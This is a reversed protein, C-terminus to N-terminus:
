EAPAPDPSETVYGTQAPGSPIESSTFFDTALLAASYVDHFVGNKLVEHRRIGESRFGLKDMVKRSAENSTMCRCAVRNIRFSTFVYSLLAKAAEVAYGNGWHARGLAYGLEMSHPARSVWFCGITGLIMSDPAERLVIGYPDPNRNRYSPLAFETIFKLSDALSSHADWLTFRAVDRDHAYNFVGQLDAKTLPRLILRETTLVPPLYAATNLLNQQCMVELGPALMQTVFGSEALFRVAHPTSPRECVMRLCGSRHALGALEKLLERGLGQGRHQQPVAIGGLLATSRLPYTFTDPDNPQWRTWGWAAGRMEGSEALAVVCVFHHADTQGNQQLAHAWVSDLRFDRRAPGFLPPVTRRPPSGSAGFKELGKGHAREILESLHFADDTHAFRFQVAPKM